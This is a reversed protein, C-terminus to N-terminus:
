KNQLKTGHDTPNTLTHEAGSRKQDLGWSLGIVALSDTLMIRVTQPNYECREKNEKEQWAIDTNMSMFIIKDTFHEPECKLDKILSQIKELLGLTTFGPFIKWETETPMDDIRNM